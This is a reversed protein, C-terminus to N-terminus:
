PEHHMARRKKASIFAGDLRFRWTGTMVLKRVSDQKQSKTMGDAAQHDSDCWQVVTKLRTLRQALSQLELATYKDKLSYASSAIDGKELVDYMAKADIVLTAKVKAAGSVPDDPDVTGGLLEHWTLRAFMAEQELESLAQAEAALSSRAVRQLKSSRWSVLNIRGEGKALDSPHILGLLFGGTSAGGPRNALAADSFGIFCLEDPSGGLNQVKISVHRAAHIERVLKNVQEILSFDRTSLTSQLMSLKASHHPATQTARWQASGLVARAQSVEADTLKTEDGKPRPQMQALEKSFDSHDLRISCDGDQTIRIGCHVFSDAEWPSWEYHSHLEQLLRTYEPAEENGAFLLDDVFIGIIGVLTQGDDAFIRWLCPDTHCRQAGCRRLTGSLDVFWERPASTLGYASGLLEVMRQPPLQMREALEPVPQGYLAHLRAPNKAQLFATKVDGSLIKWKYSTAANLLLMKSLRSLSPSTTDQELLTPDSYGLIVIRAKAKMRGPQDEGASKFTYVRRMKLAQDPTISPCAARVVQKSIWSDLEVKKAENMAAKQAENLRNWAVEVGKQVSKAMFKGPDKLMRKWGREDDPVDVIASFIGQELEADSLFGIPNQGRVHWPREDYEHSRHQTQFGPDVPAPLYEVDHLLRDIDLDVDGPEEQDGTETPPGRKRMERDPIMEEESDGSNMPHSPPQTTPSTATAKPLNTMRRKRKEDRTKPWHKRRPRAEDDYTGKSMLKSLSTMTWPMSVASTAEAVLREAESAHRLQSAHFRKLRGGAIAWVILSPRRSAGDVKTECALVRGPGYWRGIRLRPRDVVNNAPLDAPRQLRRFYILDGPLFQVSGRTKANKARSAVDHARHDLFAKEAALRVELTAGFPNTRPVAQEDLPSELLRQGPSWDRGMTWQLPSFGHVRALSNHTMVMTLAAVKPDITQERLFVEVKQRVHGITREVESITQHHEAPAAVIEIGHSLCEESLVTSRHAGELDMKLQEPYGFYSFWAERLIEVMQAGSLNQHEDEPHRFAERVVAYGSAEDVMLVFHHIQNSLRMSFGDVQLCSWLKDTRELNVAPTPLKIKGEQCEDCKLLSVAAIVKADANRAKLNKILLRNSPHGFKRHLQHAVSMLKELEQSTLTNLPTLDVAMVHAEEKWVIEPEDRPQLGQCLRKWIQGIDHNNPDLFNMLNASTSAVRCVGLDLPRGGHGYQKWFRRVESITLVQSEPQIVWVVQGGGQLQDRSLLLLHRIVKLYKRAKVSARFDDEPPFLIPPGRPIHCWLWLKRNQRLQHRATVYGEHNTLDCGQDYSLKMSTIGHDLLEQALRDPEMWPECVQVLQVEPPSPYASFIEDLAENAEKLPQMIAVKDEATLIEEVGDPDSPGQDEESDLDEAIMATPVKEKRPLRFGVRRLQRRIEPDISTVSRATYANVSGRVGTWPMAGHFVKPNFAVPKKYTNVIYGPAQTGSPLKRWRLPGPCTDEGETAQIWLEGNQFTGVSCTANLSAAHNHNDRHLQSKCNLLISVSTWSFEDRGFWASVCRNVYECLTPYEHTVRTVGLQNGHAYLGFTLSFSGKRATDWAQRLSGTQHGEVLMVVEELANMDFKAMEIYRRCLSEVQHYNEIQVRYCAGLNNLIPEPVGATRSEYVHDELVSEVGLNNLIPKPVGATRSDNREATLIKEGPTAADGGTRGDPSDRNDRPFCSVRRLRRVRELQRLASNEAATLSIEKNTPYFETEPDANKIMEKADQHVVDVSCVPKSSDQSHSQWSLSRPDRPDVGEQRDYDLPSMEVKPKAKGKGKSSAASTSSTAALTALTVLSRMSNSHSSGGHQGVPVSDCSEVPLCESAPDGVRNASCRVHGEAVQQEDSLMYASELFNEELPPSCSLDKGLDAVLCGGSLWDGRLDLLAHGSPSRRLPIARHMNVSTFVIVFKSLDLVAGLRRLTRIGVLLPVGTVDLTFIGLQIEHDGLQQPLLIYSASYAYEGNGFKFRKPPQDVVQVQEAVGLHQHRAKMLQEVAPLSGVTETAGTDLVAFGTLELGEREDQSMFTPVEGPDDDLPEATVTFVSAEMFHVGGPRPGKGKGQRKPCTRFDHDKSGCIFCGSYGPQGVAAGLFGNDDGAAMVPASSASSSAASSRGKPFRHKGKGHKGKPVSKGQPAFPYFGRSLNRAKVAQRAQVFNRVKAEAIAYAEDVEKHEEPTLLDEPDEWNWWAADEPWGAYPEYDGQNWWTGESLVGDELIAPAHAYVQPPLRNGVYVTEGADVSEELEANDLVLSWEGAEEVWFTRRRSEGKQHGRGVQEQGLLEDEMGRLAKEIDELRLSNGAAAQVSLRAQTGLNARRLLLWGLVESPLVEPLKEEHADWLSLDELAKVSDDSGSDKRGRRRRPSGSPTDGAAELEEELDEPGVTATEEDPTEAEQEAQPEEVTHDSARRHPSAGTSSTGRSPLKVGGSDMQEQTRVRSLAVQLHRYQQRLHAAWTAMSQNPQRKMRLILAELRVGIDPVPLRGLAEKLYQLLYVVGNRRCLQKHDINGTISWARDTLQGVIQPGLLHRRKRPTQEFALRVRRTFDNWGSAEGNWSCRLYQEPKTDSTMASAFATPAPCSAAKERDLLYAFGGLVRFTNLDGYTRRGTDELEEGRRLVIKKLLQDTVSASTSTDVAEREFPLEKSGVMADVVEGQHKAAAWICARSCIVLVVHTQSREKPKHSVPSVVSKESIVDIVPDEEFGEEESEEWDAYVDTVYRRRLWCCVVCCCCCSSGAIIGFFAPSGIFDDNDEEGTDNGTDNDTDNSSLALSADQETVTSQLQLAEADNEVQDAM